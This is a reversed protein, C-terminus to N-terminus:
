GASLPHESKSQCCSILRRTRISISHVTVKNSIHYATLLFRGSRDLLLFAPDDGAAVVSLPELSGRKAHIRYSALEGSGRLTVFLFRGNASALTNAPEAPCETEAVRTLAGTEVDRRWTVIQKEQLLSVFVFSKAQSREVSRCAFSHRKAALCGLAAAAGSRVVNRRRINTM